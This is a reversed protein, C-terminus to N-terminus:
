ATQVLRGSRAADDPVGRGGWGLLERRRDITLLASIMLDLQACVFLAGCTPLLTQLAKARRSLM